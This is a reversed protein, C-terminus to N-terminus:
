ASSLVLIFEFDHIKAEKPMAMREKPIEPSKVTNKQQKAKIMPTVLTITAVEVDFVSLM